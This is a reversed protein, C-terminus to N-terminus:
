FLIYKINLESFYIVIKSRNGWNLACWTPPPSAFRKILADSAIKIPFAKFVAQEATCECEDRPSFSANVNRKNLENSFYLFANKNYYKLLINEKFYQTKHKFLIFM